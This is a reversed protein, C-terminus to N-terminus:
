ANPPSAAATPLPMWPQSQQAKPNGQDASKRFLEAAKGYDQPVGEGRMDARGLVFEAEPDGQEAASKIKDLNSEEAHGSLLWLAPLMFLPGFSVVFRRIARLQM